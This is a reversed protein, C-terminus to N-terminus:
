EDIRWEYPEPESIKAELCCAPCDLFNGDEHQCTHRPWPEIVIDGEWVDLLHLPVTM